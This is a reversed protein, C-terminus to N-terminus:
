RGQLTHRGAYDVPAVDFVDAFHRTVASEVDTRAVPRGLVRTLSTVGKEQIGCPIIRAFFRLDPDVNLAFGHSTVWRSVRVGIAAIKEDGVWVGTYAPERHGEVGFDALARILVEEIRRLHAHTDKGLRALQVIPYGVLQGPGHYTVDGGRDVWIVKVGEAALTAPDVLVNEAHGGRGLTYVHPHELLYLVDPIEERARAEVARRQMEWAEEYDVAGLRVVRCPFKTTENM